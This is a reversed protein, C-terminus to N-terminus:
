LLRSTMLNAVSGEACWKLFNDRNYWFNDLMPLNILSSADDVEEHAYDKCDKKLKAGDDSSIKCYGNVHSLSM